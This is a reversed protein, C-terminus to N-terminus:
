KENDTVGVEFGVLEARLENVNENIKNEEFNQVKQEQELEWASRMNQVEALLEEKSIAPDLWQKHTHVVEDTAIAIIDVTVELYDKADAQHRVKEINTIKAKYM